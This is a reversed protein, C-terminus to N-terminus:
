RVDDNFPSAPRHGPDALIWRALRDYFGDATSEGRTRMLKELENRPVM